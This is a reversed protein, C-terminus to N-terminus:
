SLFSARLIRQLADYLTAARARAEEPSAELDPRGVGDLFLTDGSFLAAEGLLYSTSEPTHRVPRHCADM